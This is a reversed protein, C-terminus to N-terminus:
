ASFGMNIMCFIWQQGSEVRVHSNIIPCRVYIITFSLIENFLDFRVLM